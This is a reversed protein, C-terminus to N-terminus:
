NIFNAQITFSLTMSDALIPLANDFDKNCDMTITQSDLKYSFSIHQDAVAPFLEVVAIKFLSWTPIDGIRIIKTINPGNIFAIQQTAMKNSKPSVLEKM